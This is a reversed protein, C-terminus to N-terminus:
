LPKIKLQALKESTPVGNEDWGRLRYYSPLLSDVDSLVNVGGVVRPTETFRDPLKDDKKSIGIKSIYARKTTFIREGIDMLKADDFVLGTVAKLVQSIMGFSPQGGGFGGRSGSTSSCVSLSDVVEAINQRQIVNSATADPPVDPCGKGHYAGIPLTAYKLALAPNPRPDHECLSGGKVHMAYREAGKSIIESAARVGEALVMGFGKRRAMLETMEVIAESNGWTLEIGGTDAKTLIGREYCEIAMAITTGAEITDMSYENCLYNAKCISALNDNLLLSGYSALTEYEPGVCERLAFSGSDVRVMTDSHVPCNWCTPTRMSTQIPKGENLSSPAEKMTDASIARVKEYDWDDVGWNGLPLDKRGKEGINRELHAGRGYMAQLSAVGDFMKRMEKMQELLQSTLTKMGEPDAVEPMKDGRAVIAKLKKAGMLCGMGSRGAAHGMEMVCAFKVLNEGGPGISVTRARQDYDARVARETETTTLGWLNRADRIEAKGDSLWLLVPQKSAGEVIIVDFGAHKLEAGWFGGADGEGWVGTLPSKGAVIWRSSGLWTTGTVPGIAFVLKNQPSLPTTLPPVEDYVISTSFGAGGLFNEIMEDKLSEYQIRGETLDVRLIKGAYGFM